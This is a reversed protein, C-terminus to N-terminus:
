GRRSELRHAYHARIADADFDDVHAECQGGRAGEPLRRYMTIGRSRCFERVSVRTLLLEAALDRISTM